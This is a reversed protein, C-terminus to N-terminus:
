GTPPLRRPEGRIAAGDRDHGNRVAASEPDESWPRLYYGSLYEGGYGDDRRSKGNLVVGILRVSGRRLTAAARAVTGVRTRGLRCVLLLGDAHAAVALPDSVSLIPPTDVVVLDTVSKLDDLLREFLDLSLLDAPNPPLPGSPVVRLNAVRTGHLAWDWDAEPDRLLSTLGHANPLGFIRHQLPQRLDADVLVTRRGAQAMAVALNAAVTSKGEGSTASSVVLVQVPQSASAFEVNTRLLRIAEAAPEHPREVIFLRRSPDRLGRLRPLTTLVPAGTVGFVNTESRLSTDLFEVLVLVAVAVLLGAFAALLTTPRGGGVSDAFAPVPAREIVSVQPQTAAGSVDVQAWEAQLQELTDERRGLEAQLASIRDVVIPDDADDGQELEDIERTLEAIEAETASIQEEISARTAAALEAGRSGMFAVFRDAVANAIAAAREPDTDTVGVRLLETNLVPYATVMGKLSEADFPLDLDAVVPALVPDTRVLGAYTDARYALRGTGAVPEILLTVGTTYTPTPRTATRSEVYRAALGSIVPALLLLWWWRRASRLIQRLDLEL